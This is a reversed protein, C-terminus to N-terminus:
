PLTYCRLFLLCCNEGWFESDLICINNKEACMEASCDTNWSPKALVIQLLMIRGKGLDLSSIKEQLHWSVCVLPLLWICAPPPLFLLMQFSATKYPFREFKGNVKSFLPQPCGHILSCCFFLKPQVPSLFSKWVSTDTGWQPPSPNTLYRSLWFSTPRKNTTKKSIVSNLCASLSYCLLGTNSFRTATIHKHTLRHPRLSVLLLNVISSYIKLLLLLKKLYLKPQWGESIRRVYINVFLAPGTGGGKKGGSPCFVSWQLEDSIFSCPGQWTSQSTLLAPLVYLEAQLCRATSVSSQCLSSAFLILVPGLPPLCLCYGWYSCFDPTFCFDEM